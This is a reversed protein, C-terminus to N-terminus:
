AYVADQLALWYFSIQLHKVRKFRAYETYGFNTSYVTVHM